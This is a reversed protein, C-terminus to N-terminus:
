NSLTKFIGCDFNWHFHQIEHEFKLIEIIYNSVFRSEAKTYHFIQKRAKKVTTDM